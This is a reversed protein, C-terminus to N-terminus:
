APWLIYILPIVVVFIDSHHHKYSDAVHHESAKLELGISFPATVGMFKYPDKM